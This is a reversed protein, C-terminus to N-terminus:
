AVRDTQSGAMISELAQNQRRLGSAALALLLVGVATVIWSFSGLLRMVMFFGSGPEVLGGSQLFPFLAWFLGNLLGLLAGVLLVMSAINRLAIVAVVGAVVMLGGALLGVLSFLFDMVSHSYSMVPGYVTRGWSVLWYSTHAIRDV